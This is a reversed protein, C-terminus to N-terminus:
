RASAELVAEERDGAEGEPVVRLEPLASPRLGYTGIGTNKFVTNKFALFVPFRM